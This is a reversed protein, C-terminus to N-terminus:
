FAMSGGRWCGQPGRDAVGFGTRILQASPCRGDTPGGPDVMLGRPIAVAELPQELLTGGVPPQLCFPVRECDQPGSTGFCSTRLARSRQPELCFGEEGRGLKLTAKPSRPQLQMEGIEAGTGM